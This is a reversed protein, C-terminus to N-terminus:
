NARTSRTSESRESWRRFPTGVEASVMLVPHVVEDVSVEYSAPRTHQTVHKLVGGQKNVDGDLISKMATSGLTQPAAVVASRNQISVASSRRRGKSPAGGGEPCGVGEKGGVGERGQLEAVCM